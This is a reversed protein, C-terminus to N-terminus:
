CKTHACILEPGAVHLSWPLAAPNHTLATFFVNDAETVARRIAHRFLAGVSFEEYYLGAL